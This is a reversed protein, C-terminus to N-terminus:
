FATIGLMELSILNDHEPQKNLSINPFSSIPHTISSSLSFMSLCLQPTLFSFPASHFPSFGLGMGQYFFYAVLCYILM